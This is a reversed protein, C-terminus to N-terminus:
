EGPWKKNYGNIEFIFQAINRNFGLLTFELDITERPHLDVRTDDDSLLLTRVNGQENHVARTLSCVHTEGNTDVAYLKVQDIHSTFEDLERLSLKYFAEDKVLPQEIRHQLTIDSHASINLLTEYIYDTGNWVFLTPCTGHYTVNYYATITENQNINITRPNDTSNNEWHLFTYEFWYGWFHSEAEVDYIGPYLSLTVPSYYQTGNIWVKVDSMEGGSIKKTKVTLEHTHQYWKYAADLATENPHDKCTNLFADHGDTWTHWEKHVIMNDYYLHMQETINGLQMDNEGAIFSTCIKVKSANQASRMLGYIDPWPTGPGTCNIPASAIMAASFSTDAYDKQIEYAAVVGGASFGFLYINDYGHGALWTTADHLWTDYPGDYVFCSQNWHTDYKVGLVDIGEEHLDKIFLEKPLSYGLETYLSFTWVRCHYGLFAIGGFLVIAVRNSSANWYYWEYGSINVVTRTRPAILELSVVMDNHDKDGGGLKNEFGILYMDPDDLNIYIQAHKIGDPNKNTETFYRAEPSLFSLGFTSNATFSKVIPPDVYGFNGELGYFLLNYEATGVVYWSLENLLHYFAFEAYLTINYTGPTFTEITSEKINTFGLTNLITALTPEEAKVSRINFAMTLAGILLVTLIGSLVAKAV